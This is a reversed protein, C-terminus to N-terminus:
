ASIDRDCTSLHRRQDNGFPVDSAMEQVDFVSSIKRGDSGHIIRTFVKLNQEYQVCINYKIFILRMMAAVRIHTLADDISESPFDNATVEDRPM